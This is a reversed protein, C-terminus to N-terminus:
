SSAPWRHSSAVRGKSLHWAVAARWILPFPTGDVTMKRVPAPASEKPFGMAGENGCGTKSKGGMGGRKKRGGPLLQLRLPVLRDVKTRGARANLPLLRERAEASMKRRRAQNAAGDAGSSQRATARNGLVSALQAELRDINEAIALARKLVTTSPTTMTLSWNLLVDGTFTDLSIETFLDEM